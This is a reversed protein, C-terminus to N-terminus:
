KSPWDGMPWLTDDNNFRVYTIIQKLYESLARTFGLIDINPAGTIWRHILQIVVIVFLVM